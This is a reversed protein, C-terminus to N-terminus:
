TLWRPVESCVGEVSRRPRAESCPRCDGGPDPDGRRGCAREDLARSEERRSSYGAADGHLKPAKVRITVISVPHTLSVDSRPNPPESRGAGAAEGGRVLEPRRQRPGPRVRRSGTQDHSFATPRVDYDNVDFGSYDGEFLTRPRGVRFTTRISEVAMLKEGERLLALARQPVLVGGRGKRYLDAM